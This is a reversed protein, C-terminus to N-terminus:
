RVSATQPKARQLDLHAQVMKDKMMFTWDETHHDADIFTFIAHHM